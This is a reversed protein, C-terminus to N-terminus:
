DLGVQVEVAVNDEPEYGIKAGRERAYYVADVKILWLNVGVGATPYGQYAGARLRLISLDLEGGFHVHMPVPLGRSDLVDRYDAVLNIRQALAYRLGANLAMDPRVDGFTAVDQAQVGVTLRSTTAYFLGLDVGGGTLRQDFELVDGPSPLEAAEELSYSHFGYWRNFYKVAVGAHLGKVPNVAHAYGVIVGADTVSPLDLRPQFVGSNLQRTGDFTAYTELAFGKWGLRFAPLARIVAARGDLEEAQAQLDKAEADSLQDIHALKDHNDRFYYVADKMRDIGHGGGCNTM